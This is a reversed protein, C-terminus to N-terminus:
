SFQIQVDKGLEKLIAQFPTKFGLCKRPTLDATLAALRELSLSLHSGRKDPALAHIEDVIVTRTTKLMARRVGFWAPHVAVLRRSSSTRRRSACATASALRREGTRVWTRIEVDPLCQACLAARVGALPTELNRNIDNSLAKLPSVYVVQTENELRGDLGRDCWRIM